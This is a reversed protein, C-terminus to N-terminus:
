KKDEIKKMKIKNRINKEQLIVQFYADSICRVKANKLVSRAWPCASIKYLFFQFKLFNEM